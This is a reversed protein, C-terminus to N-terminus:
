NGGYKKARSAELRDALFKNVGGVKSVNVKAIDDKNSPSKPPTVTSGDLSAAQKGAQLEKITKAREEKRATAIKDEISAEADKYKAAWYASFDDHMPSTRKAEAIKGTQMMQDFVPNERYFASEIELARQQKQMSELLGKNEQALKEDYQARLINVMKTAHEAQSIDGENLLNNLENLEKDYDRGSTQQPQVAATPRASLQEVTAKLGYLEKELTTAKSVADDRAKVMRQWDPHEHFPAPKEETGAPKEDTKGEPEAPTDMEENKALETDAGKDDTASPADMNSEVVVPTAPASSAAVLEENLTPYEEPM